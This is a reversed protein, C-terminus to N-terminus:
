REAAMIYNRQQQLQEGSSKVQLNHVHFLPHLRQHQQQQHVRRRQVRGRRLLVHPRAPSGGDHVRPEGHLLEGRLRGYLHAPDSLARCFNM